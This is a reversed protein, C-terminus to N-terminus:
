AGWDRFSLWFGYPVGHPGGADSETGHSKRLGECFRTVSTTDEAIRIGSTANGALWIPPRGPMKTEPM